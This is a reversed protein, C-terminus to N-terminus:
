SGGGANKEKSYVIKLRPRVAANAAAPSFFTYLDATSFESSSTARLLLGNNPGHLWSQVQRRINFSFTYATGAKRRGFSTGDEPEFSTSDTASTILHPSVVTDKVFASLRSTVPDRELLLEASNIIAGRPIGTLDFHLTSRYVIGAQLFLLGPDSLTPTINGVFTDVGTNFTSTDRTTGAVNVAIVKLTPLYTISDSGFAVFGRILSQTEPAPILAVGFKTTTTSTSTQFWERVMATDLDLVIAQTDTGATASVSGRVADEYFGSQVSDWTLTNSSWSKTIRHATFGLPSNTNGYWTVAHLSLKASVVNITDRAPFNAPTFEVTTYAVFSGSRGLLNVTGNMAVYQQFSGGSLAQITTDEVQFNSLPLNAVLSNAVTPEDSCAPAMIALATALLGTAIRGWTQRNSDAM